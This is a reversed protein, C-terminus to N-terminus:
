RPVHSQGGRTRMSDFRKTMEDFKGQQEPTLQTRIDSRIRQQLTEFRPEVERRLSDMAPRHRDLVARVSDREAATLDLERTLRTLYGGHERRPGHLSVKGSREALLLGGAGCIGGALFAALLLLLASRRSRM